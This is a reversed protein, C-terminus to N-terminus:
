KVLHLFDKKKVILFDKLDDSLCILIKKIKMIQFNTYVRNETLNKTMVQHNTWMILREQIVLWYDGIERLTVM